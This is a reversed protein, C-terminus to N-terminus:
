LRGIIRVEGRNWLRLGRNDSFGADVRVGLEEM